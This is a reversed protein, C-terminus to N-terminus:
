KPIIKTMEGGHFIYQRFQKLIVLSEFDASSPGASTPHTHGFLTQIEGEAFQIGGEGGSVIAREGSTLTVVAHEKGTTFIMGKIDNIIEELKTGKQIIKEITMPLVKGGARSAVIVGRRLKLLKLAGEGLRGTIKLEGLGPIPIFWSAIELYSYFKDPEKRRSVGQM